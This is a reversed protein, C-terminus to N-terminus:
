NENNKMLMEKKIAKTIDLLNVIGDKNLRDIVRVFLSTYLKSLDIGEARLSTKLDTAVHEELINVFEPYAESEPYFKSKTLFILRSNDTGNYIYQEGSLVGPESAVYFLIGEQWETWTRWDNRLYERHKLPNNISKKLRYVGNKM